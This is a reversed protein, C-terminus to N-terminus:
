AWRCQKTRSGLGENTLAEQLDAMKGDGHSCAVCCQGEGDRSACTLFALHLHFITRQPGAFLTLVGREVQDWFITGYTSTSLTKVTSSTSPYKRLATAHFILWALDCLCLRFLLLFLQLQVVIKRQFDLLLGFCALLLCDALVPFFGRTVVLYLGHLSSFGWPILKHGNSSSNRCAGWCPHKDPYGSPCM